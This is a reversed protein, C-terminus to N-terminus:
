QKSGTGSGFVKGTCSLCHGTQLIVEPKREIRLLEGPVAKQLDEDVFGLIQGPSGGAVLASPRRESVVSFRQVGPGIGPGGTDGGSVLASVSMKGTFFHSSQRRARRRGLAALRADPSIQFFAFFHTSPRGNAAIIGRESLDLHVETSGWLFM